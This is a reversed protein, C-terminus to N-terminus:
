PLLLDDSARCIEGLNVQLRCFRPWTLAVGMEQGENHLGTGILLDVGADQAARHCTFSPLKYVHM